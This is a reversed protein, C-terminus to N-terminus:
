TFVQFCVRSSLPFISYISCLHLLSALVVTLFRAVLLRSSGHCCAAALRRLRWSPAAGGTELWM